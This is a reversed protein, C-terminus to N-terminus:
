CLLIYVKELAGSHFLPFFSCMRFPGWFTGRAEQQQMKRLGSSYEHFVLTGRKEGLIPFTKCAWRRLWNGWNSETDTNHHSLKTTLKVCRPLPAEMASSGEKSQGTPMDPLPQTSQRLVWGVSHPCHWRQGPPGPSYLFGLQALGHSCSLLRSKQTTDAETGARIEQRANGNPHVIYGTLSLFSNKGWTAM